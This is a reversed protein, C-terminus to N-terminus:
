PQQKTITKKNKTKQKKTKKNELITKQKYDSLYDLDACWRESLRAATASHPTITVFSMPAPASRVLTFYSHLIRYIIHTIAYENIHGVKLKHTTQIHTQTPYCSNTLARAFHIYQIRVQAVKLKHFSRPIFFSSTLVPTSSPCSTYAHVNASSKITWHAHAHPAHPWYNRRQTDNSGHAQTQKHIYAHIIVM